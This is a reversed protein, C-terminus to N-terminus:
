GGGGKGTGFPAVRRQASAERRVREARSRRASWVAYYDQIGVACFIFTLPLIVARHRYATGVNGEVLAYAFSVVLLATAVVTYARPDHRLALWAGRVAFPLLAYWILTEPLTFSQLISGVSWPFPAFMFYAIGVPLFQLAGAFTSVDAGAGYAWGAGFAMDQRLYELRNLSPEETLSGALGNRSVFILIMFLGVGALFSRVPSRSKGM